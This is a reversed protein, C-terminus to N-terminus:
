IAGSESSGSEDLGIPHVLAMVTSTDGSNSMVIINNCEFNTMPFVMMTFMLRLFWSSHISLRTGFMIHAANRIRLHALTNSIGV